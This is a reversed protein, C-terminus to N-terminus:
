LEPHVHGQGAFSSLEPGNRHMWLKGCVPDIPETLEVLSGKYFTPGCQEWLRGLEAETECRETGSCRMVPPIRVGKPCLGAVQGCMGEGSALCGLREALGCAEAVVTDERGPQGLLAKLATLIRHSGEEERRRLLSESLVIEPDLMFRALQLFSLTANENKHFREFELAPLLDGFFHDWDEYARYEDGIEADNKWLKEYDGENEKLVKNFNHNQIHLVHLYAEIYRGFMSQFKAPVPTQRAELTQRNGMFAILSYRVASGGGVPQVGHLRSSTHGAVRGQDAQRLACVDKDFTQGELAAYPEMVELWRPSNKDDPIVHASLFDQLRQPLLKCIYLSGGSVTAKDSMAVNFTFLDQDEHAVIRTRGSEVVYRRFFIHNCQNNETYGMVEKLFPEYVNICLAKVLNVFPLAMVNMTGTSLAGQGKFTSSKYPRVVDKTGKIYPKSGKTSFINYQNEPVLDVNDPEQSWLSNGLTTSYHADWEEILGILRQADERPFLEFDYVGQPHQGIDTASPVNYAISVKSGDPRPLKFKRRGPELGGKVKAGGAGAALVGFVAALAAARVAGGRAM